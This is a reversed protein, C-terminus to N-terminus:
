CVVLWYYGYGLVNYASHTLRWRLFSRVTLCFRVAVVDVAIAATM